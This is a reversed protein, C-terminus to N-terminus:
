LATQPSLRGWRDPLRPAFVGQLQLGKVKQHGVSPLHLELGHSVGLGAGGSYFSVPNADIEPVVEPLLPTSMWGTAVRRTVMAGIGCIM